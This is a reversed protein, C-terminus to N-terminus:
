VPLDPTNTYGVYLALLRKIGDFSCDGIGVYPSIAFHIM